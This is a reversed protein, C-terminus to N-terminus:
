TEKRPAEVTTTLLMKQAVAFSSLLDTDFSCLDCYLVTACPNFIVTFSSDIKEFFIAFILCKQLILTECLFLAVRAVDHM